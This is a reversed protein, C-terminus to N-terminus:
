RHWNKNRNLNSGREERGVKKDNYTFEASGTHMNNLDIDTKSPKTMVRAWPEHDPIRNTWWSEISTEAPTAGTAPPGNLHINPSAEMITDAGSLINLIGATTIHGVAGINFHTDAGSSIRLETGVNFDTELVSEIHIDKDSKMHIGNGGRAHVRVEDKSILHIGENATVRFTKNTTFNIDKEAHFSLNRKAYVDINGAEDLEIWTRGGATSFYIRENTDDLIVQHGHTTRFRVRCNEARDDMSMSHFGPTTISCVQPDYNRCTTGSELDPEVRSVDYGQNNTIKNGDKETFTEELDDAFKTIFSDSSSSMKPVTGSVSHDSGRTRVEFNDRPDSPLGTNITDVSKNFADTQKSYTPEIQNDTSTLPGSPNDQKSGKKNYKYRGHPM